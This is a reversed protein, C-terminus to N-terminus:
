LMELIYNRSTVQPNRSVTLNKGLLFLLLFVCAITTICLFHLFAKDGHMHNTLAVVDKLDVHTCLKFM